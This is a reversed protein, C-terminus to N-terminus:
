AVVPDMSVRTHGRQKKGSFGGLNTQRNGAQAFEIYTFSIALLDAMGFTFSEAM